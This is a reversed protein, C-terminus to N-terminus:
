ETVIDYPWDIIGGMDYIRAYGLGDLLDAAQASRNGSRCYVIIEADKDPLMAAADDELDSLPILLAGPIHGAAYEEPTRVDVLVVAADAAMMDRGTKASITKPSADATCAALTLGVALFLLTLIKKM